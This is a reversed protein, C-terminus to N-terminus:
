PRAGGPTSNQPDLEIARLQELEILAAERDYQANLYDSRISRLIRQADLVEIIGREGFRFAAEAGEVAAQAGRLAGAEIATVQESAIQYQDFAREVQSSIDLRLASAVANAQALAATAEGIPGQRRNFLPIPLSIGARFFRLDPMQEYEAVVVPQPVRLAKETALRAQASRIEAEARALAPHLRLATQRIEEINRIDVAPDLAGQVRIQDSAGGGMLARLETMAARERLQASRLFTEATSVESSARTLELRGAEGVDVQVQVRQQLDEVLKLTEEAIDIESRRRLVGYFAQKVAGRLELRAEELGYVSAERVRTAAEIRNRRVSKWELLQNYGWHQLLGSAGSPLRLNQHGGLYIADPNPRASATVVGAESLQIQSEAVRMRPNLREAQLLADELTLPTAITLPTAPTPQQAFLSPVLLVFLALPIV